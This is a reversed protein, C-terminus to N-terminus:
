IINIRLAIITQFKEYKEHNSMWYLSFGKLYCKEIAKQAIQKKNLFLVM